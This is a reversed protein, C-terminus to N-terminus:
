RCRLFINSVPAVLEDVIEQFLGPQVHFPAVFVTQSPTSYVRFIDAHDNFVLVRLARVPDRFVLVCRADFGDDFLDPLTKLVKLGDLMDAHLADETNAPVAVTKVTVWGDGTHVNTEVPTGDM